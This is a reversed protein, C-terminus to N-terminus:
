RDPDFWRRSWRAWGKVGKRRLRSVLLPEAIVKMAELAYSLEADIPDDNGPFKLIIANQRDLAEFHKQRQEETRFHNPRKELHERKRVAGIVWGKLDLVVDLPKTSDEGFVAKFSPRIDIVRSFFAREHILREIPVFKADRERAEEDTEGVIRGRTSGEGVFGGPSRVYDFVEQARYMLVLAEEALESQRTEIREQRWTRVGWVAFGAAGMVALVNLLATIQSWGFQWPDAM